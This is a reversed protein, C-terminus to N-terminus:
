YFFAGKVKTFHGSADVILLQLITVTLGITTHGLKRRVSECMKCPRGKSNSFNPDYSRLEQM